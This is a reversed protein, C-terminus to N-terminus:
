NLLQFSHVAFRNLGDQSATNCQILSVPFCFIITHLYLDARAAFSSNLPIVIIGHAGRYYSSTITRFREQGATDWQVPFVSMMILLQHNFLCSYIKTFCHTLQCMLTVLYNAILVGIELKQGCEMMLLRLVLAIQHLGNTNLFSSGPM